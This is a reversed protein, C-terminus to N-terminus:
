FDYIEYHFFGGALGPPVMFDVCINQGCEACFFFVISNDCDSDYKSFM